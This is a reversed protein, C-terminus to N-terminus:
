PKIKFLPQGFEVLSENEVCIEIIEGNIDADIENMIKMAELVCLTQGAKVKDGVKAYIPKGPSPSSYFTGVFPSKIVHLNKDVAAKVPSPNVSHATSPGHQVVPAIQQHHNIPAVSQMFSVSVKFEKAEVSLETVGGEKAVKVIEKLTDLNM